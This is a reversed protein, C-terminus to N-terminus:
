LKQRATQGRSDSVEVTFNVEKIDNVRITAFPRGHLRGSPDLNMGPPLTGEVLKWKYPGVGGTCALQVCYDGSARANPISTTLIKLPEIQVPKRAACIRLLRLIMVAAALLLLVALVMMWFPVMRKVNLPFSQEAQQGSSDLVRLDLTYSGAKVPTGSLRGNDLSLGEPLQDCQWRYPARGGECAFALEAPRGALLIPIARTTIELRTVNEATLISGKLILDEAPGKNEADRVTLKVEFVGASEPTGALLGKEPELALGASLEGEVLEWTYPPYGGSASLALTYPSGARALCAERTLIQVPALEPHITLEYAASAQRSEADTLTVSVAYIGKSSPTGELLGQKDSVSLGPCPSAPSFAWKYPPLGGEVALVLHYPQGARGDPLTKTKIEPPPPTRGPSALVVLELPVSAAESGNKDTVKWRIQSTGIDATGPTGTFATKSADTVLWAPAQGEISWTYPPRGGEAAAYLIYNQKAVAAPIKETVVKLPPPPPYKESVSLTFPKSQQQGRTTTVTVDFTYEGIRSPRGELQGESSLTLGPPLRDAPASWVYPPQGGEAAFQFPYAQQQYADPLPSNTLIVLPVANIPMKRYVTLNFKRTVEKSNEPNDPSLARCIVDFTYQSKEQVDAPLDLRGSLKGSVPDLTLGEPKQGEGFAWEFKGMGERAGLWVAYETGYYGDPLQETMIEPAVFVLDGVLIVALVLLFALGGITNALVDLFSTSFFSVTDQRRRAM